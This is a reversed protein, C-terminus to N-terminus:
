GADPFEGLFFDGKTGEYYTMGPGHAPLRDDPLAELRVATIGSVDPQFVLEYLDQKTTDGSAFM